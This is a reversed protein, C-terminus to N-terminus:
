DGPWLVMVRGMEGCDSIHQLTFETKMEGGSKSDRGRQLVL